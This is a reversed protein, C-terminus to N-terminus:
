TFVKANLAIKKLDEESFDNMISLWLNDNDLREEFSLSWKRREASSLGYSTLLEDGEDCKLVILFDRLHDSNFVLNTYYLMYYVIHTISYKKAIDSVTEVTLRNQNLLLMDNIDRFMTTRICNYQSLRYLSNMDKYHHLILQVFAKELPLTKVSFGYINMDHVNSLFDSISCRKGEYEGWFIDFNIDVNLHFGFKYKHYSPIQHSHSLCLIRDRRSERKDSNVQQYFGAQILLRELLKVNDKDILIDIDSPCRMNPCSYIQQSLAEGKVVAYNTSELEAWISALEKYLLERSIKQIDM